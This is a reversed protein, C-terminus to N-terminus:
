GQGAAAAAFFASRGPSWCCWRPCCCTRCADDAPSPAAPGPNWGLRFLINEVNYLSALLAAGTYVLAIVALARSREAWALVWLGVAIILFAFTGRMWLDGVAPWRCTGCGRRARGRSCRAPIALAALVVGTIPLRPGPDQPRGPARAAPVVAADAPAPSSRSWGTGASTLFGALGACGGLLLRGPHAGTAPRGPGRRGRRRSYFPVSACTLLGFLVLPFWYAHRASRARRRLRTLDTLLERPATRRQRLAM